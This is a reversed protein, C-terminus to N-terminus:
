GAQNSIPGHVEIEEPLTTRKRSQFQIHYEKVAHKVYVSFDQSSEFEEAQGSSSVIPQLVKIYLGSDIGDNANWAALVRGRVPVNFLKREGNSELVLQVKEDAANYKWAATGISLLSIRAQVSYETKSAFNIVISDNLVVTARNFNMNALLKKSHQYSGDKVQLIGLYEHLVLVAREHDTMNTWRERNFVIRKLAPYNIADKITGDLTLKKDTSEVRTKLLEAAFAKADVLRPAGEQLYKQVEEATNVFEIAYTDGGNGVVKTAHSTAPLLLLIFMILKM